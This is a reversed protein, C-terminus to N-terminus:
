EACYPCGNKLNQSDVKLQLQQQKKKGFSALWKKFPPQGRKTQGFADPL